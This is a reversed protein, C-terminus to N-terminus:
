AGHASAEPPRLLVLVQDPKLAMAGWDALGEAGTFPAGLSVTGQRAFFWGPEGRVVGRKWCENIHADGHQARLDRIRAPLLPMATMVWEYGRGKKERDM